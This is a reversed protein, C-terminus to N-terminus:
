KGAARLQTNFSNSAMSSAIDKLYPLYESETDASKKTNKEINAIAMMQDRMMKNQEQISRGTNAAIVNGEIIGIRVAGFQGALIGAQDATIGKIADSLSNPNAGKGKLDVGTLKSLDELKAANEDFIEKYKTKLQEIDEKSLGDKSVEYFQDYFKKLEESLPGYQVSNLIAKRMIDEFNQAATSFGGLLGDVFTNSLSAMDTGTLLQKSQEELAKLQEDLSKGEEKLKKLNNFLDLTAGELRGEAAIKEIEEFTKGALSSYENVVKTKRGIGLFGGYKETHEGSRYKMAGLQGSLKAAEMMGFIGKRKADEIKQAIANAEEATKNGVLKANAGDADIKNKEKALLLAEKEKELNKFSVYDSKSLLILRERLVANYDLEGSYAKMRLDEMEKIAKLESERAKAGISLIGAIASITKTIGGVIDGSAFGAVAGAADGAINAIDGITALTDALEPNTAELANAMEHFSSATAKAYNAIRQAVKATPNDANIKQGFGDTYIGKEALGEEANKLKAKAVKRQEPTLNANALEREADKIRQKLEKLSANTVDAMADKYYQSEEFALQKVAKLEIDRAEALKKERAQLEETGIGKEARLLALEKDYKENIQKEKIAATETAALVKKLHEQLIKFAKDKAEKEAKGSLDSILDRKQNALASKDADAPMLSKLYELYTKFGKLDKNFKANAMEAGFDLKYQEFEDYLQKQADISLKLNAVDQKAQLNETATAEIPKLIGTPILAVQKKNKKNAETIKKNEKEILKRVEDFKQKLAAKEAEDSTLKKGAYEADLALIKDWLGKRSDVIKAFENEAKDGSDNTLEDLNLGNAKAFAAMDDNAKIWMKKFVEAKKILPDAANKRNLDASKTYFDEGKVKGKTGSLIYSVSEEDPKAMEIAAKSMEDSYLKMLSAATAKKFMLQIYADGNKLTREEAVNLDNTFGLTKGLGENYTKLVEAKTLIGKKAQEFKLRMGEVALTAKASAEGAAGMQASLDKQAEKIADLSKKGKFLSIFFEGIEKGYVTLLTIGVSLATGWSFLGSVLQKWVPVGKQGSEALRMNEARLSKIQDTLMPINNAIAMFGTQASYTFAPLERSIQNISNQLGNFNSTTRAAVQNISKAVRANAQEATTGVAAIGNRVREAEALAEPTNLVFDVGLNLDSM